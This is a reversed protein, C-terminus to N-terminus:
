VSALDKERRRPAAKRRSGIYRLPVRNHPAVIIGRLRALPATRVALQFSGSALMTGLVVRMEFLSFAAGLCRRTGGGFPAYEWPAYQREAFREPHFEHPEDWVQPNTHLLRLSVAVNNGVDVTHGLLTFPETIRRVSLPVIPHLRMAEQCLAGLYPAEALQLPPPDAGLPALEDLVRERIEDNGHVFYLVWAMSAATTDHGAVLM